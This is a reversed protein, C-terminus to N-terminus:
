APTIFRGTDNDQTHEHLKATLEQLRKKVLSMLDTPSSERSRFIEKPYKTLHYNDCEDCKYVRQPCQLRDDKRKIRELAKHAERLDRYSKKKCSTVM